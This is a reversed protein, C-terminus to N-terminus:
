AAVPATAPEATPTPRRLPRLLLLAVVVLIVGIAPGLVPMWFQVLRLQLIKARVQDITRNVAEDSQVFDTSALGTVFQGRYTAWQFAVQAGKVIAGTVPEVWLMTTAQYWRDTTTFGQGKLDPSVVGGPLDVTGINTEPVDSLFVHVTLGGLEETRVYNAPFAKHATSDYFPYTQKKTGFPFKLTLGEHRPKEGCCHIAYGTSRDMAYIDLSYSIDKDTDLNVTRQFNSFVGVTDTGAKQDSRTIAINKLEFPGDLGGAQPTFIKGSGLSETVDYIDSPAKEVRPKTYVYLLASLFILVVGLMFAM